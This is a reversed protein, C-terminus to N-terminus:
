RLFIKSRRGCATVPVSRRATQDLDTGKMSLRVPLRGATSARMTPMKVMRLKNVHTPMLPVELVSKLKYHTAGLVIVQDFALLLGIGLHRDVGIRCLCRLFFEKGVIVQVSGVGTKHM